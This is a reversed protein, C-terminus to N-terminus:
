PFERRWDERVRVATVRIDRRRLEEALDDATLAAEPDYTELAIRNVLEGYVFSRECVDCRLVTDAGLPERWELHKNGCTCRLEVSKKASEAQM